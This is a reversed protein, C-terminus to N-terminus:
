RAVLAGEPTMNTGFVVAVRVFLLLASFGAQIPARRLGDRNCALFNMRPIMVLLDAPVRGDPALTSSTIEHTAQSATPLETRYALRSATWLFSDSKDSLTTVKNVGWPFHDLM